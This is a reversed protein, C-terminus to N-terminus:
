IERAPLTRDDEAPISTARGEAKAGSNSRPKAACYVSQMDGGAAVNRRLIVPGEQLPSPLTTIAAIETRPPPSFVHPM